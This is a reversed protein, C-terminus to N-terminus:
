APAVKAQKAPRRVKAPASDRKPRAPRRPAAPLAMHDPLTKQIDRTLGWMRAALMMQVEFAVFGLQFSMRMADAFHIPPRIVPLEEKTQHEETM